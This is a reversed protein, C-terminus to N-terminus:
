IKNLKIQNNEVIFITLSFYLSLLKIVENNEGSGFGELRM